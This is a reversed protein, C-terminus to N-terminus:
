YNERERERERGRPKGITKGNRDKLVSRKKRQEGKLRSVNSLVRAPDDEIDTKHITENWM